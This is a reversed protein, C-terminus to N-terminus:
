WPSYSSSAAIAIIGLLCGLSGLGTTQVIRGLIRSPDKGLYELTINFCVLILAVGAGSVFGYGLLLELNGM